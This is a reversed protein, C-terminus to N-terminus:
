DDSKDRPQTMWRGAVRRAMDQIDSREIGDIIGGVFAEVLLSRAAAEDLGRTMLYFMMNQDIEGVTSGHSCKVDDAYIELEPKSNADAGRALLLNHNTQDANSRQADPRVIVRGQFATHAGSDLVGNYAQASVNDPTAHDILTAIEHSQGHRTLYAGSLQCDAKEGAFTVNIEHRVTRGGTLLSFSAYRAHSSLRVDTQALHLAEPGEQEIKCSALRAGAELTVDWLINTWYRGAGIYTEIFSASSNAGAQIVHHLHDARAATEDTMMHIIEIPPAIEADAAITIVMGDMLFATNLNKVAAVARASSQFLPELSERDALAENLRQIELGEPLDHLRSVTTDLYGNVFVIRPHNGALALDPDLAHSAGPIGPSFLEKHLTGLSTYRWEETHRSPFGTQNFAGIAQQRLTTLWNAEGGPLLTEHAHFADVYPNALPTKLTLTM